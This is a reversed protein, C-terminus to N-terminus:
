TIKRLVIKDLPKMGFILSANGRNVALEIFGHSGILVLTGGEKCFGYSEKFTFSKDQMELRDGPQLDVLDSSINTIINGFHDIFIVEGEIRDDMIKAKGFDLDVYDFIRGGVDEIALGM